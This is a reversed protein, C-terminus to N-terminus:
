YSNWNKHTESCIFIPDISYFFIATQEVLVLFDGDSKAINYPSLKKKNNVKFLDINAKYLCITSSTQHFPEFKSKYDKKNEHLKPATKDLENNKGTPLKNNLHVFIIM